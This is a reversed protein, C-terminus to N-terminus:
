HYPLTVGMAGLESEVLSAWGRNAKPNAPSPHTIRGVTLKMGGVADRVRKEAFAGVGVVWRPNYIEIYRRLAQDCIGFLPKKELAPLRDPPRNRGSKEMFALPCYNLVLFQEFFAEASGFRQRAWGWLRRGSVERRKCVFGTVPRKAHQFRPPDVSTHIGMWSSVMEVDGFPVGTQVMGFPGPNMGVLLIPKKTRGFRRVYCDYGKRAYDLPNYVHTVPTSFQLPKLKALLNDTVATMLDTLQNDFRSMCNAQKTLAVAQENL